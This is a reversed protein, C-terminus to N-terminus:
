TKSKNVVCFLKTLDTNPEYFTTVLVGHEPSLVKIEVIRNVIGFCDLYVLTTETTVSVYYQENINKETNVKYIFALNLKPIIICGPAFGDPHQKIVVGRNNYIM